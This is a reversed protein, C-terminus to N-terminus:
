KEFKKLGWGINRNIRSIYDESIPLVNSFLGLNILSYLSYDLHPELGKHCTHCLTILNNDDTLGGKSFPMIHHIQLEVHENNKPSAGCIKCRYNDRKLIHMRPKPNPARHFSEQGIRSLPVLGKDYTEVSRMPELLEKLYKNYLEKVMLCNGGLINVFLFFDRDNNIMLLPEKKRNFFAISNDVNMLSPKRRQIKHNDDEFGYWHTYATCEYNGNEDAFLSIQYYNSNELPNQNLLRNFETYLENNM